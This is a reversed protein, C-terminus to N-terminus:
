SISSNIKSLSFYANSNSFSDTRNIVGNTLLVNNNYFSITSSTIYMSYVDTSFVQNEIRIQNSGNKINVNGYQDFNFGYYMSNGNDYTLGISTAAYLEGVSFSLYCEKYSEATIIVDTNGSDAIKVISNGVPYHISSASNTINKLNFLSPGNTGTPGTPGAIGVIGTGGVTITNTANVPVNFRTPKGNNANIQMFSRLATYDSSSM